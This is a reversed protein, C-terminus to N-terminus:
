ASARSASSMRFENASCSPLSMSVEVKYMGRQLPMGEQSFRTTDFQGNRVTVKDQGVYGLRNVMVILEAGDPLNTSAHFVPRAPDDVALRMEPEFALAPVSLSAAAFVLLGLLKGM